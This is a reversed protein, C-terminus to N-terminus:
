NGNRKGGIFSSMAALTDFNDPMLEDDEIHIGYVKEIFTVLEVMAISDIVGKELLSDSAAVKDGKRIWARESMFQRITQTIENDM